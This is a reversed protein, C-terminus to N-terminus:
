SVLKLSIENQGHHKRIGYKGDEPRFLHVELLKPPLRIQEPALLSGHRSPESPLRGLEDPVVITNM